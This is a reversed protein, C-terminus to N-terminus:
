RNQTHFRAIVPRHDSAVGWNPMALVFTGTPDWERAMGPSLFIYDVRSYSDERSYYSTWTIRRPALRPNPAPQDDGNPEAPRTDVLGQRSGRGRIIRLPPSDPHDNLDGLVVLNLHPDAALRTDIIRRLRLAEQERLDAQNALGSQLRSKLHANILSFQYREHVRIDIEVFARRVHFRRGYLLFSENTHHRRAIIPYRSLVALHINTDFGSVHEWHSYLLGEAALSARLELLANTTGIEQLALVDANLTHITQRVAAKSPESKPPRSGTQIHLYNEINYSAVTFTLPAQAAPLRVVLTLISLAIALHVLPKM